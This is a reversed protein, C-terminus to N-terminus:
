ETERHILTHDKYTLSNDEVRELQYQMNDMQYSLGTVEQNINYQGQKIQSLDDFLTNWTHAGLFVIVPLGIVM